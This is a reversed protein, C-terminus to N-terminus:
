IKDPNWEGCDIINWKKNIDLLYNFDDYWTGIEGNKTTMYVHAYVKKKNPCYKLEFIRLYLISENKKHILKYSHNYTFGLNELKNKADNIYNNWEKHQKNGFYLCLFIVAIPPIFTLMIYFQEM